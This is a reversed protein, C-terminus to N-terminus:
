FQKKTDDQYNKGPNPRHWGAKQYKYFIRFFAGFPVIFIFYVLVFLLRIQFNAVKKGFRVWKQYLLKIKGSMLIVHIYLASNRHKSLSYYIIRTYSISFGYPNDLIEKREM